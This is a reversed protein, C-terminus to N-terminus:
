RWAPMRPGFPPGAPEQLRLGDLLRQSQNVAAATLFWALAPRGTRETPRDRRSLRCDASRGSRDGRGSRTGNRGNELSNAAMHLWALKLMPGATTHTLNAAALQAAYAENTLSLKWLGRGVAELRGFLRRSNPPRKWPRAPPLSIKGERQAIVAEYYFGRPTGREVKAATQLSKKALTWLHQAQAAYQDAQRLEAQTPYRTYIYHWDEWSKVSRLNSAAAAKIAAAHDMVKSFMELVVPDDGRLHIARELLTEAEDWQQREILCAAKFALPRVLNPDLQLAQDLAQEAEALERQRDADTQPRYPRPSSRPEVWEMLVTTAEQYLFEGLDALRAGDHPNQEVAARLEGLRLQYREDARLRDADVAKVLVLAQRNLDENGVGKRAAEYLGTLLRDCADISLPKGLLALRGELDGKVAAAAQPDLKEGLSFDERARGANGLAASRERARGLYAEARKWQHTLVITYDARASRVFRAAAQM